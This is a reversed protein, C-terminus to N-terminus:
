YGLIKKIGEGIQQWDAVEVTQVARLIPDEQMSHAMDQGVCIVGTLAGKLMWNQLFRVNGVVLGIFPKQKALFWGAEVACDVGYADLLLLGMDCRTMEDICREFIAKPLHTHPVDPTFEQPLILEFEPVKLWRRLRENLPGNAVSSSLYIRTPTVGDFIARSGM